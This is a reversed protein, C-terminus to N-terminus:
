YEGDILKGLILFLFPQLFIAYTSANHIALRMLPYAPTKRGREGCWRVHPDADPPKDSGNKLMFFVLAKLVSFM